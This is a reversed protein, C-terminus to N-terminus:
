SANPIHPQQFQLVMPNSTAAIHLFTNRTIRHIKNEYDHIHYSQMNGIFALCLSFSSQSENKGDVDRFTTAIHITTYVRRSIASNSSTMHTDM